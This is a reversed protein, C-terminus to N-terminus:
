TNCSDCHWKYNTQKWAKKHVKVCEEHFWEDCSSDNMRTGTASVQLETLQTTRLGTQRSTHSYDGMNNVSHEEKQGGHDRSEMDSYNEANQKAEM